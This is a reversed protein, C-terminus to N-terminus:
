FRGRVTPRLLSSLGNYDPKVLERTDPKAMLPQLGIKKGILIDDMVERPHAKDFILKSLKELGLVLAKNATRDLNIDYKLHQRWEELYKEIAKHIAILDARSPIQVDIGNEFHELIKIIPIKVFSSSNSMMKDVDRNGSSPVGFRRIYERDMTVFDPVYANYLDEWIKPAFDSHFAM